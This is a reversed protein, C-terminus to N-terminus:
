RRPDRNRIFWTQLGVASALYIAASIWFNAGLGFALLAPILAMFLAPGGDATETKKHLMGGCHPCAEMEIEKM